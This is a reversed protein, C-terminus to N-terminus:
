VFNGHRVESAYQEACIKSSYCARRLDSALSRCGTTNGNQKAQSIM